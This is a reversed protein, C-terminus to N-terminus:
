DLWELLLKAVAGPDELQPYHGITPLRHVASPKLEREVREAIAPVAIPDKMGWILRVPIPSNKLAALWTGSHRMRERMYGAVKHLVKRGHQHILLSWQDQYHEPDFQRPEAYVRPYQHMFVSRTSLRAVLANILPTRLLRQTPLPQHLDMYLGANLLTLSRPRLETRRHIVRDMLECAVTAGMDHALLDFESIQLRRLLAEAANAQSAIRYDRGVPKASLGYGPFDFCILRSRAKLLPALRHWDFSSTPFGHFCVLPPGQGTQLTFLDIHDVNLIEGRDRWEVVAQSLMSM